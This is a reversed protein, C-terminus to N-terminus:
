GASVAAGGVAVILLGIADNSQAVLESSFQLVALRLGLDVLVIYTKFDGLSTTIASFEQTRINVMARVAKCCSFGFFDDTVGKRKKFTTLVSM